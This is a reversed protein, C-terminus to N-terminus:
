LHRIKFIEFIWGHKCNLSFHSFDALIKFIDFFSKLNPNLVWFNISPPRQSKLSRIKFIEFICGNKALFDALDTLKKLKESFDKRGWTEFIDTSTIWTKM